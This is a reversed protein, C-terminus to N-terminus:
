NACSGNWPHENSFTKAKGQEMGGGPGDPLQGSTVLLSLEGSAYPKVIQLYDDASADLGHEIIQCILATTIIVEHPSAWDVATRPVGRGTWRPFMRDMMHRRRPIDSAYGSHRVCHVLLGTEYGDQVKLQRCCHVGCM